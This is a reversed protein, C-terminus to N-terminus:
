FPTYLYDAIELIILEPAKTLFQQILPYDISQKLIMLETWWETEYRSLMSLNYLIAYYVLLNPLLISSSTYSPYYLMGSEIRFPPKVDKLQFQHKVYLKNKEHYM